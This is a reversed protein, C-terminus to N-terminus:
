GQRAARVFLAMREPDKKRADGPQEVGSAVDVGWPRVRRVAQAVNDPTLGGALILRRRGALQAVLAWDFSQGTGGLMGEVKADVLLRDGGYRDALAVDRDTAIRIAKYADPLLEFLLEPTEFGHLQLADLGLDSRLTTLMALPLDAVVGVIPVRGAVAAAIARVEDPEIWRPSRPVLNVGIADAGAAAAALADDVNTIGCIKVFIDRM